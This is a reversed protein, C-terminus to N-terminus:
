VTVSEAAAVVRAKATASPGFQTFLNTFTQNTKEATVVAWAALSSMLNVQTATLDTNLIPYNPFSNQTVDNAIFQSVSPNAAFQDAFPQLYNLHCWVLTVPDRTGIGFWANPLVNLTQTFVAPGANTGTGNAAAWLGELLEPFHKSDFVQNNSYGQALSDVCTAGEYLVYGKNCEGLDGNGYPQYGFLPPISDDVVVYTNALYGGNGDSVGYQGAALPQGTNVFSILASIDSYALMANIGLNELYGGDAFRTPQPNLVVTPNAVPWYNYQPILDQPNPLEFSLAAVPSAAVMSAVFTKAQEREQAFLHSKIWEYIEWLYYAMSEFFQWPNQEWQAIQNQLLGAFFSSSTGAIDTLSWQRSQTVSVSNGSVSSLASNFAFSTVGGGGPALGNQDTGTPTGVIGTMFPTAQVPAYAKVATGPENLLMAM